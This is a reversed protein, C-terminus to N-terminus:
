ESKSYGIFKDLVNRCYATGDCIVTNLEPFGERCSSFELGYKLVISRLRLMTSRRLEENLYKYGLIWKGDHYLRSLRQYLNYDLEKLKRFFGRVPKLTSVTVQKVGIEALVGVLEEFEELDDNVGPIIPDIRATTIIGSDALKKLAEIRLKPPPANPEWFSSIEENLTTITISIVTPTSKLIDIDRLVMNSKTVILLPFKHKALVEICRRTIKYKKELPQYPDTCDSLMVPLKPRTNAAMVEIKELLDERPLTQGTFSPFKVAYCYVCGHGCRGLYTNLNYKPLCTCFGRRSINFAPLKSM